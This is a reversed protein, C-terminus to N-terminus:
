GHAGAGGGSQPEGPERKRVFNAGCANLGLMDTILWGSSGAARAAGGSAVGGLTAPGLAMSVQWSLEKVQRQADALQSKLSHLEGEAAAARRTQVAAALEAEEARRMLAEMAAADADGEGAPGDGRGGGGGASSPGRQPSPAAHTDVDRERQEAAEALAVTLEVKAREAAVAREEMAAARAAAESARAAAESADSGSGPRRRTTPSTPYGFTPLDEVILAMKPALFVATAGVGPLVFCKWVSLTDGDSHRQSQGPASPPAARQPSHPGRRRM